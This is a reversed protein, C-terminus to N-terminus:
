EEKKKEGLPKTSTEKLSPEDSVDKQHQDVIDILRRMDEANSTKQNESMARRKRYRIFSM